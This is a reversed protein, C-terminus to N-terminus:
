QRKYKKEIELIRNILTEQKEKIANIEKELKILENKKKEYENKEKKDTIKIKYSM